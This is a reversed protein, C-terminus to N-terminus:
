MGSGGRLLFVVSVANFLGHVLVPVLVGNTRVALWGLGLSLVFLPIPNPWTSHMLAFLAGTAYIARVRAYVPVARRKARLAFRDLVALGVSLVGIFSLTATRYEGRVAFLCAVVMVVWARAPAPSVPTTGFYGTRGLCWGLVLGRILVEERLPAGVCAEAVLLVQDLVPRAAVKTLPHEAPSVGLQGALENVVVNLILVVPAMVLWALVALWVKGATSGRGVLAPEWGPHLVRVAVTLFGLQAPLAVVSAWLVRLTTALKAVEQDVGEASPSPFEPGYVARYFGAYELVAFAIMPLVFVVVVFGFVVEWENWPVRWPKWRPLLPEDKPKLARALLGVPVAGLAVLLGSTTMRAAETWFEAPVLFDKSLRNTNAGRPKLYRGRAVRV